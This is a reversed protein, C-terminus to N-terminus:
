AGTATPDDLQSQGRAEPGDRPAQFIAKVRIEVAYDSSALKAEVCARTPARGPEVWADWVANMEDYSWITAEIIRDNARGAAALSEDIQALIDRTQEAVSGGAASEAVYGSFYVIDGHVIVDTLRKGAGIRRLDAM